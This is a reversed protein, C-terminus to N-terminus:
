LRWPRTTPLPQGNKATSRKEPLSDLDMEYNNGFDNVDNVFEARIQPFFYKDISKNLTVLSIQPATFGHFFYYLSIFIVNWFQWITSSQKGKRIGSFIIGLCLDLIKRWLIGYTEHFIKCRLNHWATRKLVMKKKAFIRSVLNRNSLALNGLTKKLILLFLATKPALFSYFTSLM